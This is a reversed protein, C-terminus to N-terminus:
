PDRPAIPWQGDIENAMFELNTLGMWSRKGVERGDVLSRLCRERNNSFGHVAGIM